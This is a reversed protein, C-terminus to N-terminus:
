VAQLEEEHEKIFNQWAEKHLKKRFKFVIDNREPYLIAVCDEREELDSTELLKHMNEHLNKFMEQDLELEVKRQKMTNEKARIMRRLTTIEDLMQRIKSPRFERLFSLYSVVPFWGSVSDAVNRLSKVNLLSQTTM